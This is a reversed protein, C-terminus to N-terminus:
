TKKGRHFSTIKGQNNRGGTNSFGKKLKKTISKLM